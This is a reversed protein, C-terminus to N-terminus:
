NLWTGLPFPTIYTEVFAALVLLVGAAALALFPQKGKCFNTGASCGISFGTLELWAHPLVLALCPLLGLVHINILLKMLVQLIHIGFVAWPAYPALKSGTLYLVLLGATGYILLVFLNNVTISFFM